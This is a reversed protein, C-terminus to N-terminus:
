RMRRRPHSATPESPAAPPSMHEVWGMLAHAEKGMYHQSAAMLTRPEGHAAYTQTLVSPDKAVMSKVLYAALECDALDPENPTSRGLHALALFAPPVTQGNHDKNATEVPSAGRDLLWKALGYHGLNLAAGFPTRTEAPTADRWFPITVKRTWNLDALRPFLREVHDRNNEQIATMFASRVFFQM